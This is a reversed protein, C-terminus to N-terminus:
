SYEGPRSIPHCPIQSVRNLIATSREYKAYGVPAGGYLVPILMIGGLKLVTISYSELLSVPFALWLSVSLDTRGLGYKAALGM